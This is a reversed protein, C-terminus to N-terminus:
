STAKRMHRNRAWKALWALGAMLTDILTLMLAAAVFASWGKGGAMTQGLAITSAQKPMNSRLRAIETANADIEEGLDEYAARIRLRNEVDLLDPCYREVYFSTGICFDESGLGIHDGIPKGTVEGNRNRAARSLDRTLEASIDGSTEFPFDPRMRMDERERTLSRTRKELDGITMNAEIIGAGRDDDIAAQYSAGVIAVVLIGAITLSGYLLQGHKDRNCFEFAWRGASMKIALVIVGGVVGLGTGLVPDEPFVRSFSTFAFYIAFLAVIWALIGFLGRGGEDAIGSVGDIIRALRARWPAEQRLAADRMASAVEGAEVSGGTTVVVSHDDRIEVAGARKTM